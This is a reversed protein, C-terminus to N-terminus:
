RIGGSVAAVAPRVARRGRRRVRDVADAPRRGELLFALIPEDVCAEGRGFTVHPGGRTVILYGDALRSAIARAQGVPTIPDGTAGLVFVPFPTTTLPAPRSGDAPQYPWFLCPLQNSYIEDARLDEVGAAAGAAIVAAADRPDATPSVRYDACTIAHYAFSSVGVGAGSGLAVVLRAAPVNDGNAAAAVARQVLMRGGPEYLLADVAAEFASSTSGTRGSSAM